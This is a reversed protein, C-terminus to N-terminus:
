TRTSPTTASDLTFIRVVTGTPTMVTYTTDPQTERGATGAIACHLADNITLSTDAVAGVNRAASLTQTKDLTVPASVSAVAGGAYTSRTSIAADLNDLLGARTNTLRSLLTTTGATDGGAYTSLGSQVKTVAAASVGAASIWDTTIAPLNTLTTVTPITVGAQTAQLLVKGASVSVQDTSTGSTLLSANTTCATDPLATFGANTAKAVSYIIIITDITGEAGKVFLPGVTGTDTTSLDVYYSGSAIEVANTAGASPNGYAAGNKSITVAITKGTAATVTGALYAQLPVRITASQPIREPM